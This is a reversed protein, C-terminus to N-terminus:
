QNKLMSAIVSGVPQAHVVGVMLEDHPVTLGYTSDHM